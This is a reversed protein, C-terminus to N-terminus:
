LQRHFVLGKSMKYIEAFDDTDDFSIDMSAIYQVVHRLKEMEEFDLQLTLKFENQEFFKELEAEVFTHIGRALAFAKNKDDQALLDFALNKLRKPNFTGTKLVANNLANNWMAYVISRSFPFLRDDDDIDKKIGLGKGKFRSSILYESRQKLWAKVAVKAEDTLYMWKGRSWIRPPSHDLDLDTLMINLPELSHMLGSFQVLFYGRGKVDMHSLIERFQRRNAENESEGM